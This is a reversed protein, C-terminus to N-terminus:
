AKEIEAALREDSWRGDVKIGKADAADQLVERVTRPDVADAAVPTLSAGKHLAHEVEDQVIFASDKTYLWRPYEVYEM